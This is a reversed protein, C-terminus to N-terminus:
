TKTELVAHTKGVSGANNVTVIEIGVVFTVDHQLDSRDLVYTQFATVSECLANEHRMAYGNIILRQFFRTM